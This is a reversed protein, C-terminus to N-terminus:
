TFFWNSTYCMEAPILLDSVHSALDKRIFILNGTHCVLTYGKSIGLAVMPHFGTGCPSGAGHISDVVTPPITSNIEVVVIRPHYLEVSKWVQYDYSDIDISLVDFDTPIPTTKLIADLSDEGSTAVTKHFPLISPYAEVTGRLKEFLADNAEIYVASYGESKVLRFTNSYLTGDAAGFECAWKTPNPIQHLLERLVGDEGNQSYVNQRYM